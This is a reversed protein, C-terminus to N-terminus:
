YSPSPTRTARSVTASSSASAAAATMTTYPSYFPSESRSSSRSTTPGTSAGWADESPTWPRSTSGQQLLQVYSSQGQFRQSPRQWASQRAADMAASKAIAIALADSIITQVDLDRDASIISYREAAEADDMLPHGGIQSSPGTPSTPSTPSSRRQQIWSDLSVSRRQQRPDRDQDEHDGDSKMSSAMATPTATLSRSNSADWSSAMLQQQQQYQTLSPRRLHMLHSLTAPSPPPHDSSRGSVPLIVPLSPTLTSRTYSPMPPSMPGVGISNAMNPSPVMIRHAEAQSISKSRSKKSKAHTKAFSTTTPTPSSHNSGATPSDPRNMNLVNSATYHPFPQGTTGVFSARTSNSPSNRPIQITLPSLPPSLPSLPSREPSVFFGTSMIQSPSKQHGNKRRAHVPVPVQSGPAQPKSFSLAPTGAAAASPAAHTPAAPPPTSPPMIIRKSTRSGASGRSPSNNAKTRAPLDPLQQEDWYYSTSDLSISRRANTSTSETSARPRRGRTNPCTAYISSRTSSAESSM